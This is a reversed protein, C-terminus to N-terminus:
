FNYIKWEGDEKRLEIELTYSEASESSSLEAEVTVQNDSEDIVKTSEVTTTEEGQSMERETYEDFPSDSHLLENARDADNSNLASNFQKVAETPGRDSDDGGSCGAIAVAGAVGSLKVFKRRTPNDLM